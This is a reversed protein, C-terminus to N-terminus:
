FHDMPSRKNSATKCLTCQVHAPQSRTVTWYEIGNFNIFTAMGNAVLRMSLQILICYDNWEKLWEKLCEREDSWAISKIKNNPIKFIDHQSARMCNSHQLIIETSKLFPSPEVMEFQYQIDFWHFENCQFRHVTHTCKACQM